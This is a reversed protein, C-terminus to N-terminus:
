DKLFNSVLTNFAEAQEIQTWHGCRGFVHLQASPLLDLMRISSELPVVRDERGHVILTQHPLKRLADPDNSLDPIRNQPWPRNFMQAFAEAVGPRVSARHRMAALEDSVLAPDYAFVQMLAKMNAVSPQYGWVARLGETMPFDLGSSGMLVLKDVRQPHAIAFKLAMGGGFSNGVISVRDLGLADLFGLLHAQWSAVEYTGAPDPDTYGFGLMDPAIVRHTRALTPITPRWNAWASVGPGSGHILVVPTGEGIDHYNTRIDGIEITKGVEPNAIVTDTM